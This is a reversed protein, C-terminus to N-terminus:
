PSNAPPHKGKTAVFSVCDGQNKFMSGFNKWAGNKCQDKLSPFPKADAVTVDGFTFPDELVTAPPPCSSPLTSVFSSDVKDGIAGNDEVHIVVGAPTPPATGPFPVLITAHNGSVGLCSVAFTGLDGTVFTYITVTGTPSEGSPGSSADFTFGLASRGERYSISGTVTDQAPVQGAASSALMAGLVVFGM